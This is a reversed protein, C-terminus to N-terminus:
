KAGEQQRLVSEYYLTPNTLQDATRQLYDTLPGAFVTLVVMGALLAGTATFSLWPAASDGVDQIPEDTELKTPIPGPAPRQGEDSDNGPEPDMEHSKWFLISGARGFGVLAILSTILITAGAVYLLWDGSAFDRVADLGFIYLVIKVVTFVGAKVVAVAHLLASVPAPAVMAAPLWGHFPMLAAKGVGFIYLVLLLAMVPESVAGMLIGGPRFDLTGTEVWTWII